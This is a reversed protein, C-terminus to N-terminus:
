FAAREREAPDQRYYSLLLDYLAPRRARMLSPREFFCETAVAFFEAEDTAGYPDLVTEGGSEVLSRLRQFEATMIFRWRAYDEKRDLIPTGDVVHDAMDLQHAFEHLVLNRGDSGFRGGQETDAWSLVVTGRSWAEGSRAQLGEVVLGSRDVKRSPAIYAEPYVLIARVHSLEDVSRNVVLLCAQAAILAKMPETLTLGGCAEWSTEATLIRLDEELKSRERPTLGRYFAADREIALRLTDPFPTSLLKKRRRKKTWPLAM